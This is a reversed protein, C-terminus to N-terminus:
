QHKLNKNKKGFITAATGALDVCICLLFSYMIILLPLRCFYVNVRRHSIM